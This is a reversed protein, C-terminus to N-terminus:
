SVVEAPETRSIKENLRAMVHQHTEDWEKSNAELLLRGCALAHDLGRKVHLASAEHEAQIRAALDTLSNSTSLDQAQSKRAAIKHADTM